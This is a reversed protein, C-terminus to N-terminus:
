HVRVKYFRGFLAPALEDTVTLTTGDGPLELGM